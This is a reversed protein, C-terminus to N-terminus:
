ALMLREAFRAPWRWQLVGFDTVTCLDSCHRYNKDTGQYHLRAASSTCDPFLHVNKQKNRVDDRPLSPITRNNKNLHM